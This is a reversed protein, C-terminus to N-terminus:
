KPNDKLFQKGKDTIRHAMVSYNEAISDMSIDGMTEENFGQQELKILMEKDGLNPNEKILKLFAITFKKQENKIDLYKKQIKPSTISYIISQGKKKGKKDRTVIGENRLMELHYALTGFSKIRPIRRKLETVTAPKQLAAMIENRFSKKM